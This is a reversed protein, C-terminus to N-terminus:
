FRKGYNLVDGREYGLAEYFRAVRANEARIMLRVAPAGQERLWAEGAAVLAAGIGQGRQAPDTALYYLWGRHGDYGAMVTGSLTGAADRAAFITATPCALAAEIDARPDNWPRVLEAAHWLAVAAPIEDDSLRGIM